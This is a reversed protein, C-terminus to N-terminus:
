SGYALRSVARQLLRIGHRVFRRSSDIAQASAALGGAEYYRDTAWLLAQPYVHSRLLPKRAFGVYHIFSHSKACRRSVWEPSSAGEIFVDRPPPVADVTAPLFSCSGPPLPALNLLYNWFGQDGARLVGPHGHVYGMYPLCDHLLNMPFRAVDVYFHSGSVFAFRSARSVAGLEALRDMDVAWRSFSERSARDEIDIWRGNLGIYVEPSTIRDLVTDILVSDADAIVARSVGELFFVNFKSLLGTLHLKHQRMLDHVAHVRANPFRELQRLEAAPVDVDAVVHIRHHPYFHAISGLLAKAYHVDRECVFTVFSIDADAVRTM